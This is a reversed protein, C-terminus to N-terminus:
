GASSLFRGLGGSVCWWLLAVCLVIGVYTMPNNFNAAANPDGEDDCEKKTARYGNNDTYDTTWCRGGSESLLRGKVDLKNLVDIENKQVANTEAAAAIVSLPTLVACLFVLFCVLIKKM